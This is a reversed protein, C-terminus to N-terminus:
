EEKESTRGGRGGELCGTSKITETPIQVAHEEAYLGKPPQSHSRGIYWLMHALKLM